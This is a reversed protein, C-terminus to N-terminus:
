SKPKKNELYPKLNEKVQDVMKKIKRRMAEKIIEEIVEKPIILKKQDMEKRRLVRHPLYKHDMM